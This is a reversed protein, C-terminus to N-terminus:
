PKVAEEVRVSFHPQGPKYGDSANERAWKMACEISCCFLNGFLCVEGPRWTGDQSVSEKGCEVCEATDIM